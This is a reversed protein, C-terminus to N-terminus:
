FNRLISCINIKPEFYLCFTLIVTFLNLIISIYSFIQDLFSQHILIVSWLHGSINNELLNRLLILKSWLLGFLYKVRDISKSFVAALCIFDISVSKERFTFTIILLYKWSDLTFITSKQTLPASIFITTPM